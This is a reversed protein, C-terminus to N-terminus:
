IDGHQLHYPCGLLLSKDNAGSLANVQATTTVPETATAGCTSPIKGWTILSNKYSRALIQLTIDINTSHVPKPQEGSHRGGHSFYPSSRLLIM